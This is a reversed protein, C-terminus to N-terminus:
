CLALGDVDSTGRARDEYDEGEDVGERFAARLLCVRTSRKLM